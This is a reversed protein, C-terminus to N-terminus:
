FILKLRALALRFQILFNEPSREYSPPNEFQPAARVTKTQGHSQCM